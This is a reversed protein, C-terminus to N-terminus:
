PAAKGARWIVFLGALLLPLSLLQGMTAGFVLFGLHADPQRFFEGVIRATGYGMLFIGALTGKRDRIAPVRWLCFLLLGLILGEM